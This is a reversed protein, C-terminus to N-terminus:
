QAGASYTGWREAASALRAVASQPVRPAVSCATSLIYGGGDAGDEICRRATADIIADDGPLLVNVSDINGKIFLRHGVRRKADALRVNGLPPPDLCEIGDVGSEAMLELRDGIAGCTHTYMPVPHEAKVREVLRTEYPLVFERYHRLSLLGGGVYPSSIKVADVGLRAQAVAWNAAYELGRELAAHCWGPADILAMMAGEIGLVNVLGDFPSFTEGHISHRGDDRALVARLNSLMWSPVPDLTDIAGPDVRDVPPMPVARAPRPIDDFPYYADDGIPYPSRNLLPESYTVRIGGPVEIVTAVKAHWDPDSGPVSVLIGDFAYLERVRYLVDAYVDPDHRFEVPSCGTKLVFHGVSLQCMVPVRDPERHSMALAVRERGTM